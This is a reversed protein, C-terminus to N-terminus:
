QSLAPHCVPMLRDGFQGSPTPPGASVHRPKSHHEIWDIVVDGFTDVSQPFRPAREDAFPDGGGDAKVAIRLAKDRAQGPQLVVDQEMGGLARSGEPHLKGLTYSREVRKGNIWTRYRYRWIREGNALCDLVLGTVGDFTWQTRCGDIVICTAPIDKAAWKMRPM